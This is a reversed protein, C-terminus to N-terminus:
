NLNATMGALEIVKDAAVSALERLRANEEELQNFASKDPTWLASGNSCRM